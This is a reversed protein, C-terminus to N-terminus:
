DTGQLEWVLGDASQGAQLQNWARLLLIRCDEIWNEVRGDYRSDLEGALREGTDIAYTATRHQRGYDLHLQLRGLAKNADLRVRINQMQRRSLYHIGRSRPRAFFDQLFLSTQLEVLEKELPATEVKTDEGAM